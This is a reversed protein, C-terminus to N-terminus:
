GDADMLSVLPNGGEDEGVGGREPPPPSGAVDEGKGTMMPATTAPTTITTSTTGM